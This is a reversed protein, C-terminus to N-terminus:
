RPTDHIVEFIVRYDGIRFRYENSGSLPEAFNLPDTQLSYFEV